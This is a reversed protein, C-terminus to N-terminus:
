QREFDALLTEVGAKLESLRYQIVDWVIELDVGFYQHIVINRLRIVKRWEIEPRTVKLEDSLRNCAEGIISLQRLCADKMMANSEFEDFSVDKVYTEIQMIADQIHLLRVRNGLRDPM